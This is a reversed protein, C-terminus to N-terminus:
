FCGQRKGEQLKAALGNFRQWRGVTRELLVAASSGDSAAEVRAWFLSGCSSSCATAMDSRRGLEVSSDALVPGPGSEECSRLVEM